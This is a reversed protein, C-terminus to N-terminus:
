LRALGRIAARLDYDGPMLSYCLTTVGHDVYAHLKDRCEEISGHVVLEDIVSDPVAALAKKRDGAAWAEWMGGLVEGRGLWRHYASYVPTTLYGTIAPRVMARVADRDATPCVFVRDVVDIDRGPARLIPMVQKLDGASLWNLIVGDAEQAALELMRQRLAAVYVKPPVAPPAAMRYGRISFTDWTETVKEGAYAKRLFRLVDRTRSYPKAFPIGNWNEVIAHSSSGIGLITRGPALEALAAATQALIAPGRTFTAAIATGLRMQPVWQSALVLPTFADYGDAEMSWLDTYGLDQAELFLERQAPLRIGIFPVTLGIRVNAM